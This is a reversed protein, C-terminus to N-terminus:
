IKLTKASVYNQVETSNELQNKERLVVLSQLKELCQKTAPGYDNNYDSPHIAAIIKEDKLNSITNYIIQASSLNGVFDIMDFHNSVAMDLLSFGHHNTYNLDKIEYKQCLEEFLKVNENFSSVLLKEIISPYHEQNSLFFDIVSYLGKSFAYDLFSKGDVNAHDVNFITKDPTQYFLDMAEKTYLPMYNIIHSLFTDGLYAGEPLSNKELVEGLTSVPLVGNIILEFKERLPDPRESVSKINFRM